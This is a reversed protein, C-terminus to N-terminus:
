RSFLVVYGVIDTLIMDILWCSVGAMETATATATAYRLYCRM